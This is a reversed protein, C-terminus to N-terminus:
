ESTTRHLENLRQTLEKIEDSNNISEGKTTLDTQTKESYGHKGLLMGAIKPAYLGGLGKNLLRHEQEVDIDKVIDSFQKSLEDEGKCWEYITDRHVEIYRALGAVSPLDVEVWALAGKETESIEDNCTAIYGQAKELLEPTLLTPRGAM